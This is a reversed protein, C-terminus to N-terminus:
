PADEEARSKLSLRDIKGNVSLPLEQAMRIHRPIMVPPLAEALRAAVLGKMDPASDGVAIYLTIAPSDSGGTVVAAAGLVGPVEAAVSEIEMLEIRHGNIKVQDDSRRLWELEANVVRVIDGTAYMRGGPLASWPDPLFREATLRPNGRYGRAVAPGAIYAEGESGVAVSGFYDDLMYVRAHALPTGIAPTGSQVPWATSWVSAETPGYMNFFRAPLSALRKALSPPLAEGGCLALQTSALQAGADLLLRWGVPTAQILSPKVSNVLRALSRANLLESEPSIVCTGANVLPFYIELGAIDFSLRTSFLVKAVAERPLFEGIAALFATLNRHTIEM